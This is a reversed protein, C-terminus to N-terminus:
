AIGCQIATFTCFWITGPPSYLCWRAAGLACIGNPLIPIDLGSPQIACLKQEDADSGLLFYVIM